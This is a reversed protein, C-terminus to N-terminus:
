RTLRLHSIGAAIEDFASTLQAANDAQYARGDTACNTLMSNLDTGFAIVWITIGKARIANCMATTRMAVLEDQDDKTPTEDPDMVRRRDISPLGYADYAFPQTDTNGDTMFILHRSIANGNAATANEAAFLGSPSLLRAGWILGIDHYTQGSPTLTAMYSAVESSTMASLKRAPSPCSSWAGGDEDELNDVDQDYSRVPAVSWSNENDLDMRAFVLGPLAPAWQTAPNGSDPVLDIDMDLAGGPITSYDDARVTQREEICGRWNVTRMTHDDGIQATLSGGSTLGKLASVDYSVPQYMWFYRNSNSAANETPVTTRTYQEVYNNYQRGLLRCSVTIEESEYSETDRDLWYDIGNATWQRVQITQTGAPPGAYAETTESILNDGWEVTDGPASCSDVPLDVPTLDSYNGSVTAWDSNYSNTGTSAATSVVEVGDAVRSQYTWNNVMWDAELLYGVNVSSSYPVFGYRIQAGAANANTIATHFTEVASRLTAIRTEPDGPNKKYMSGTTDLVFMIDSNPLNLEAKCDASIPRENAGFMAMLTMPVLAEANAELQGDVVSFAVGPIAGSVDQTPFRTGYKGDPFNYKFFREATSKNAASFTNGVMAKRGALVAADCAHQLRTRSAYLRGMDFGGGIMAILPVIAGAIIMSANGSQSARLRSLFRGKKRIKQDAAV